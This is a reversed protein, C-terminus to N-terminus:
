LHPSGTLGWPTLAGKGDGEIDYRVTADGTLLPRMNVHMELGTECRLVGGDDRNLSATEDCVAKSDVYDSTGGVPRSELRIELDFNDFKRRGGGGESFHGTVVATYTRYNTTPPSAPGELICVKLDVDTDFGPTSFEKSQYDTCASDSAHATGSFLMGSMCMTAAATSTLAARFFRM